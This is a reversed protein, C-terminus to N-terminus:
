GVCRSATGGRREEASQVRGVRLLELLQAVRERLQLEVVRRQVVLRLRRDRETEAKAAPEEAQQVHLDHALPELPLEREVQDTGYIPLAFTQVGTVTAA